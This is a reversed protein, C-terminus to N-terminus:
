SGALHTILLEGSEERLVAVLDWANAPRGSWTPFVNLETAAAASEDEFSPVRGGTGDQVIRVIKCYGKGASPDNFTITVAADLTFEQQYDDDELVTQATSVSGNDTASYSGSELVAISGWASSAYGEFIGLTSNYRLMGTAPTGDRQATTGVPVLLSGTQSSGVWGAVPINGTVTFNGSISLHRLGSGDGNDDVILLSSQFADGNEGDFRPVANDVTSNPLTAGEGILTTSLIAPDGTSDFGLLGGARAAAAPLNGLTEGIPALIGRTLAGVIDRTLEQLVMFVRIFDANLASSKWTKKYEYASQREPTLTGFIEYIDDELSESVLTVTGGTAVEFGSVSYETTLVLTTTVGDRTLDVQIDTDEYVPFDFDLETTGAAPSLSVYRDNYDITSLAM